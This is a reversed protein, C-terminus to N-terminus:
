RRDGREALEAEAALARVDYHEASRIAITPKDDESESLDEADTLVGGFPPLSPVQLRPAEAPTPAVPIPRPVTPRAPRALPATRPKAARTPPPAVDPASVPAHHDTALTIEPETQPEDPARYAVAVAIAVAAIALLAVVALWPSM